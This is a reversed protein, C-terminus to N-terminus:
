RLEELQWQQTSDARSSSPASSPHATFSSPHLESSSPNAASSSPSHPAPYKCATPTGSPCCVLLTRWAYLRVGLRMCRSVSYRIHPLSFLVMLPAHLSKSFGKLSAELVSSQCPCSLLTTQCCSFPLYHHVHVSSIHFSFIVHCM